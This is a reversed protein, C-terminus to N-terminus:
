KRDTDRKLKQSERRNKCVKIVFPTIFLGFENYCKKQDELLVMIWWIWCGIM